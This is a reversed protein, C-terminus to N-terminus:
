KFLVDRVLITGAALGVIAWFVDAPFQHALPHQHLESAVTSAPGSSPSHVHAPPSQNEGPATAPVSESETSATIWAMGPLHNWAAGFALADRAKHAILSGWHESDWRGELQGVREGLADLNLSLPLSQPLSLGLKALCQSVLSQLARLGSLIVHLDFPSSGTDEFPATAAPTLTAVPAPVAANAAAAVPSAPGAAVVPM